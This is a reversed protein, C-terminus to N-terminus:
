VGQCERGRWAMRPGVPMKLCSHVSNKIGGEEVKEDMQEAFM